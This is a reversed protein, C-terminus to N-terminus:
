ELGTPYTDWVTSSYIKDDSDKNTKFIVPNDAVPWPSIKGSQIMKLTNICFSYDKSITEPLTTILKRAYLNYATMKTAIDTIMAPVNADAMEDPYRGRVFGDITVQAASIAEDVVEEQIEGVGDDDTLQEIVKAPLYKKLDSLSCYAM